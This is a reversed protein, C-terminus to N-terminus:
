YSIAIVAPYQIQPLSYTSRALSPRNNYEVEITSNGVTMHLRNTFLIVKKVNRKKAVAQSQQRKTDVRPAQATLEAKGM